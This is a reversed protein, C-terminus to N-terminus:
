ARVITGNLIQILEVFREKGHKIPIYNSVWSPFLLGNKLIILHAGQYRQTLSEDYEGEGIFKWTDNPDPKHLHQKFYINTIGHLIPNPTVDAKRCAYPFSIQDRWSGREVEEWWIRNLNRVAPSNDRVLIGCRYLGNQEPYGVERYRQVQAEVLESDDLGKDKVIQAEEYLCQRQTHPNLWIGETKSLAFHDLTGKLYFTADVYVTLDYGEPPLIKYKRSLKRNDDGEVKVIEWRDSTIDQNTFCKFDWGHNPKKPEKLDDYPGFITTYLLKRM